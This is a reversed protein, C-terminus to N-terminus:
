KQTLVNYMESSTHCAILAEITKPERLVAMISSIFEMYPTATSAPSLTLVIVKAVNEDVSGFDVGEPKIGVVCVLQNVADTRAHPCAIGHRLGTSMAEERKLVSALASEKDKVIGRFALVDILERIVAEKTSGKLSPVMMDMNLFRELTKRRKISAVEAESLEQKLDAGLPKRLETLTQEFSVIVELMLLRIVPEANAPAEFSIINDNKRINIVMADKRAQYIGLSTNLANAFFGEQHFNNLLSNLLLDAVEPSPFTYVVPAVDKPVAKGLGERLGKKKSAFAAVLLPPSLLTTLLTMMVAVGFVEKNLFGASLGIGAIILAVEGRPVMGVGVRVAGRLNFGCLFTPLGCGFVKAAVAAGTYALGFLLIKKDALAHLDVMMGMVAFFAPVLLGYVGELHEQITHSIDTRSFSLGMVYAGIIMSLQAKEFFGSVILALGVAMIAIETPGGLKKLLAGIKRASLVGAITAALWIGFSYGAIKAIAWWNVHGGSSSDGAGVLGM